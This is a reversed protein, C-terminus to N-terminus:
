QTWLSSSCLCSFLTYLDSFEKFKYFIPFNEQFYVLPAAIHLGMNVTLALFYVPFRCRRRSHYSSAPVEVVRRGQGYRRTHRDWGICLWPAKAGRDVSIRGKDGKRCGSRLVCYWGDVGWKGEGSRNTRLTYRARKLDDVFGIVQDTWCAADFRV